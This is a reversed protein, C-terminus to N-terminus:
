VVPIRIMIPAIAPTTEKRFELTRCNLCIDLM